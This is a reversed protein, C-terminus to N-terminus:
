TSHRAASTARISPTSCTGRSSARAGGQPPQVSAIYFCPFTATPRASRGRRPPAVRSPLLPSNHARRLQHLRGGRPAARVGHRQGGRADRREEPPRVRARRPGPPLGPPRGPRRVGEGGPRPVPRRRRPQPPTPPTPQPTQHPQNPSKTPNPPRPPPGPGPQASPSGPRLLPPPVLRLPRRPPQSPPAARRRHRPALRQGHVRQPRPRAGDPLGDRRVRASAPPCTLPAAGASRRQEPPPTHSRLRHPAPPPPAGM